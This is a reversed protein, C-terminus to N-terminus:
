YNVYYVYMNGGSDTPNDIKCTNLEYAIHSSSIDFVNKPMHIVVCRYSNGNADAFGASNLRETSLIFTIGSLSTTKASGDSQTGSFTANYPAVIAFTSPPIDWSGGPAKILVGVKFGFASHLLTKLFDSHNSLVSEILTEKIFNSDNTLDSTREPVSINIEANSSQNASFTGANKNNRKVTLTGKGIGFLDHIAVRDTASYSESSKILAQKIAFDLVSPTIPKNVSREAQPLSIDSKSAGAIILRDNHIRLGGSPNYLKVLGPVSEVFDSTGESGTAAVVIRNTDVAQHWSAGDNWFMGSPTRYFLGTKIDSTPLTDCEIIGYSNAGVPLFLPGQFSVEQGNIIAM